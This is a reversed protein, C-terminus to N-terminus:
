VSVETSFILLVASYPVKLVFVTGLLYVYISFAASRPRPQGLRPQFGAIPQEEDLATM